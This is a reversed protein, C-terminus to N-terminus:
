AVAGSSGSSESAGSSRGGVAGLYAKQREVHDQGNHESYATFFLIHPYPCKPPFMRNLLLESLKRVDMWRVKHGTDKEIARLSHYLNYGDVLVLAERKCKAVM